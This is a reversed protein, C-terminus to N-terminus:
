ELYQMVRDHVIKELIKGPLPLLSVPRLNTVNDRDGEKQLPVITAYKWESPFVGQAITANFLQCVKGPIALFADKIIRSSVNEIASSKTIDSEKSLKIVDDVGIIIDDLRLNTREGTYHWPKSFNEALKPGINAFYNNIYTATDNEAVPINNDQDILNFKTNKNKSKPLIKQITQWFKKSDNKHVDLETKIFAAKATRIKSLCQNRMYRANTWDDINNTIKARKLAHGKDKIYELIEHTLWPDKPKQIRFKKVPCMQDIITRINQLM